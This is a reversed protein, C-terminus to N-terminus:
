TFARRRRRQAAATDQEPSSEPAQARRARDEAKLIASTRPWQAVSDPWKDQFAQRQQESALHAVNDAKAWEGTMHYLTVWETPDTGRDVILWRLVANAGRECAQALLQTPADDVGLREARTIMDQFLSFALDDQVNEFFATLNQQFQADSLGDLLEAVLATPLRPHANLASIVAQHTDVGDSYAHLMRAIDAKGQFLAESRLLEALGGDAQDQMMQELARVDNQIILARGPKLLISPTTLNLTRFLAPITGDGFEKLIRASMAVRARMGVENLWASIKNKDEAVVHPWVADVAREAQAKIDKPHLPTKPM